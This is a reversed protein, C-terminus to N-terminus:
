YLETQSHYFPLTNPKQKRKLSQYFDFIDGEFQIQNQFCLNLEYCDGKHLHDQALDFKEFYSEATLGEFLDFQIQGLESLKANVYTYEKKESFIKGKALITGIEM